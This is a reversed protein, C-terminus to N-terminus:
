YVKVPFTGPPFKNTLLEPPGRVAHVWNSPIDLLPLIEEIKLPFGETLRITPWLSKVIENEKCKVEWWCGNTFDNLV